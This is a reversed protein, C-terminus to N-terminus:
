FGGTRHTTTNLLQWTDDVALIRTVWQKRRKLRVKMEKGREIFCTLIEGEGKWGYRDRV